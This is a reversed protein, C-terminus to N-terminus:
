RLTGDENLQNFQMLRQKLSEVYVQLKNQLDICQADAEAFGQLRAKETAKASACGVPSLFLLSLCLIVAAAPWIGNASTIQIKPKETQESLAKDHASLLGLQIQNVKKLLWLPSLFARIINFRYQLVTEFAQLRTDVFITQRYIVAARKKEYALKAMIEEDRM